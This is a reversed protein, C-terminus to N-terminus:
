NVRKCPLAFMMLLVTTQALCFYNEVNAEPITSEENIHLYLNLELIISYMAPLGTILRYYLMRYRMFFKLKKYEM